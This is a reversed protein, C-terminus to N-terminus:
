APCYSTSTMCTCSPLGSSYGRSSLRMARGPASENANLFACVACMYGMGRLVENAGQGCRGTRKCQLRRPGHKPRGRSCPTGLVARMAEM